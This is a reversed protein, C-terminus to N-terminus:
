HMEPTTQQERAIQKDLKDHNAANWFKAHYEELTM